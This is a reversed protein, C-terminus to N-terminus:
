REAIWKLAENEQARKECERKLDDCWLQFKEMLTKEYMWKVTRALVGGGCEWTRYVCKGDEVDIRESYRETRLGRAM